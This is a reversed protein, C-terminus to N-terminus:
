RFDPPTSSHNCDRNSGKMYLYTGYNFINTQAFYFRYQILHFMGNCYDDYQPGLNHYYRSIVAVSGRQLKFMGATFSSMGSGDKTTFLALELFYEGFHTYKMGQIRAM